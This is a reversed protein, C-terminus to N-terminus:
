PTPCTRAWRTLVASLLMGVLLLPLTASESVSVPRGRLTSADLDWNTRATGDICRERCSGEAVANVEPDGVNLVGGSNTLESPLVGALIFALVSEGTVGGEQLFILGPAFPNTSPGGFTVYETGLDTPTQLLIDSFTGTDADYVFSGSAKIPMGVDLLSDDLTGRVPIAHVVGPLLIFAATVVGLFRTRM